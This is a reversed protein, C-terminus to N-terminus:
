HGMWAIIYDHMIYQFEHPVHQEFGCSCHFPLRTSMYPTYLVSIYFTNYSVATAEKKLM